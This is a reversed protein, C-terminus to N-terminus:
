AKGIGEVRDCNVRHSRSPNIEEVDSSGFDASFPMFVTDWATLARRSPEDRGTWLFTRCASIILKLIKKPLLFVHAWYTTLKKSSLPVGLYKFPLEGLTFQMEELIMEKFEKTVGAIYLSSKEMNDKLDLVESFHNFRDILLIISVRNARCCMILDDAFCIHTINNRSCKPHYKFDLNEKLKKLARNLYEM